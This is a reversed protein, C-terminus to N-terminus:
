EELLLDLYAGGGMRKVEGVFKRKNMRTTREKFAYDIRYYWKGANRCVHFVSGRNSTLSRRIITVKISQGNPLKPYVSVTDDSFKFARPGATGPGHHLPPLPDIIPSRM